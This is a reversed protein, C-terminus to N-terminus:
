RTLVSLSKLDDLLAAVNAYAIMEGNWKHWDRSNETVYHYESQAEECGESIQDIVGQLTSHSFEQSGAPGTVRRPEANRDDKGSLSLDRNCFFAPIRTSPYPLACPSSTGRTQPRRRM